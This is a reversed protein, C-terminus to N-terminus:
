LEELSFLNDIKRQLVELDGDNLIRADLLNIHPLSVDIGRAYGICAHTLGDNDVNGPRDVIYLKANVYHRIHEPVNRSMQDELEKITQKFGVLWDIECERRCDTIVLNLGEQFSGDENRYPELAKDFWILPNSLKETEALEIMGARHAEKIPGQKHLDNVDLNNRKAYEEKLADAFSVRTYGKNIFMKGITDKGSLSLGLLFVINTKKM